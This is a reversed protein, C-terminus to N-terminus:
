APSTGSICRWQVICLLRKKSMMACRLRRGFRVIAGCWSCVKERTCYTEFKRECGYGCTSQLPRRPITIVWKMWSAMTHRLCIVCNKTQLATWRSPSSAWPPGPWSRASNGKLTTSHRPSSPTRDKESRWWMKICALGTRQLWCFTHTYKYRIGIHNSCYPQEWDHIGCEYDWQDWILLM